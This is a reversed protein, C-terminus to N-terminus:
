ELPNGAEVSHAGAHLEHLNGCEHLVAPRSTTWPYRGAMTAGSGNRRAGGVRVPRLIRVTPLGM